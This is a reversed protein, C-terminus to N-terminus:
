DWILTNRLRPHCESNDPLYALLIRVQAAKWEVPSVQQKSGGRTVSTSGQDVEAAIMDLGVTVSDVQKRLTTATTNINGSMLGIKGDLMDHSQNCKSIHEAVLRELHDMQANQGSTATDIKSELSKQLQEIQSQVSALTM